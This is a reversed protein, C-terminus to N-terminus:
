ASPPVRDTGQKARSTHHKNLLPHVNWFLRESCGATSESDVQMLPSSQTHLAQSSRRCQACALAAYQLVIAHLCTEAADTGSVQPYLYKLCAWRYSGLGPLLSACLLCWLSQLCRPMKLSLMWQVVLPTGALSGPSLAHPGSSQVMPYFGCPKYFDYAHEM